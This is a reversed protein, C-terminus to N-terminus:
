TKGREKELKKKSKKDGMDEEKSQKKSWGIVKKAADRYTELIGDHEEEPDQVDGLAKLRNKVAVNYRRGIEKSQVKRVNFGVRAKRIWETQAM